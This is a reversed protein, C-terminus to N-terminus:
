RDYEGFYSVPKDLSKPAPAGPMGAPVYEGVGAFIDDEQSTSIPAPKSHAADFQEFKAKDKKKHHKKGRNGQRLYSLIQTLKNIVNDNNSLTRTETGVKAEAKSRILTTPIDSEAFEDDLEVVYAMRNQSFLENRDPPRHLFLLRHVNEAMASKFRVGEESVPALKSKSLSADGKTDIKKVIEDKKVKETQESKSMEERMKQLLAFDLGKVLHTHEMDGGLFKSEQITQKRRDAMTGITQATPAYPNAPTAFNAIEFNKQEVRREGARDRYKENLEKQRAETTKKYEM